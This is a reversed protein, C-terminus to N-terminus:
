HCSQCNLPRPDSWDGLKAAAREAYPSAPLEAVIRRLYGEARERDGALAWSEALGALYEGRNHQGLSPFDKRRLVFAAEFAGAARRALDKARAPNRQARAAPLLAAARPVLVGIDGPDLALARDMDALGADALERASVVDGAQMAQSARWFRAAGRWVLAEAHDPDQQLTEDIISVANRFAAENGAFGRFMDDRVRYDFREEAVAVAAVLLASTMGMGFLTLWRM